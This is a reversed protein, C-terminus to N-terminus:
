LAHQRVFRRLVVAQLGACRLTSLKSAAYNCQAGGARSARLWSPQSVQLKGVTRRGDGGSM